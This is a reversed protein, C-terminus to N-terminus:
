HILNKLCPETCMNIVPCTCVRPTLPNAEGLRQHPIFISVACVRLMASQSHQASACHRPLAACIRLFFSVVVDALHPAHDGQASACPFPFSLMQAFSSCLRGACIRLNFCIHTYACTRLLFNFVRAFACCPHDVGACMRLLPCKGQESVQVPRSELRDPLPLRLCDKLNDSLGRGWASHRIGFHFSLTARFPALAHAMTAM